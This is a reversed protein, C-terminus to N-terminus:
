PHRLTSALEIEREFRRRASSGVGPALPIVKLAVDRRTALQTARHVVGQGGHGIEEHLVYGAISEPESPSWAPEGSSATRRRLAEVEGACSPCSAVHKWAADDQSGDVLAVARSWDLCDERDAM